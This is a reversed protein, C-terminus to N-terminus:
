PRRGRKPERRPNGRKATAGRGPQWSPRDEDDRPGGASPPLAPPRPRGPAPASLRTRGLRGILWATRATAAGHRGVHLRLERDDTVVLISAAGDPRPAAAAEVLSGIVADASRAGAYRVTVGAALRVGRLGREPPGDLVVEIRVAPPIVARLRGILAVSPAPAAARRLAHLLNTGDVILHEIGALPDSTPRTV